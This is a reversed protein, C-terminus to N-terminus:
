LQFAYQIDIGGKSYFMGFFILISLRNQGNKFILLFSVNLYHINKFAMDCKECYNKTPLEPGFKKLQANTQFKMGFLESAKQHNHKELVREVRENKRDM